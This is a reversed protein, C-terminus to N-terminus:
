NLLYIYITEWALVRRFFRPQQPGPERVARSKPRAGMTNLGARVFFPMNRKLFFGNIRKQVPKGSFIPKGCQRRFLSLLLIPTSLTISRPAEVGGKEAREATYKLAMGFRAEM